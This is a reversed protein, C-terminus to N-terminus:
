YNQRKARDRGRSGSHGQGVATHSLNGGTYCIAIRVVWRPLPARAPSGTHRIGIRRIRRAPSSHSAPWTDCVSIRRIPGSLAMAASRHPRGIAVRRIWRAAPSSAGTGLKSGTPSLAREMLYRIRHEPSPTWTEVGQDQWVVLNGEGKSSPRMASREKVRMLSRAGQSM